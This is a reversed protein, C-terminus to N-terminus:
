NQSLRKSATKSNTHLDWITTFSLITRIWRSRKKFDDIAEDFASLQIHAVGLDKYIAADNSNEALSRQFYELAEKGKGTLALALGLNTLALFQSTRARHSESVM